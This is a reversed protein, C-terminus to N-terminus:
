VHEISFDLTVDALQVRQDCRHLLNLGFDNKMQGCLGDHSKGVGFGQLSELGVGDADGVEQFGDASGFQRARHDNNGTILAVLIAFPFKSIALCIVEASM